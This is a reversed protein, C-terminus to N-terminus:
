GIYGPLNGSMMQAIEEPTFDGPLALLDEGDVDTGEFDPVVDGEAIEVPSVFSKEDDDNTFIELFACLADFEDNNLDDLKLQGNRIKTALMHGQELTKIEDDDGTVKYDRVPVWGVGPYYAFDHGNERRTATPTINLPKGNFTVALRSSSPSPLSQQTSGSSGRTGGRQWTTNSAPPKPKEKLNSEVEALWPHEDDWAPDLPNAKIKLSDMTVQGITIGFHDVNFLDLRCKYEHKHNGVISLLRPIGQDAYHNICSEDTASWFAGMSHHSHWSLWIFNPDGLKGDEAAKNVADVIGAGDIFDVESGSAYQPVLFVDEIIIAGSSDITCYGFGGIETKVADVFFWLRDDALKNTYIDM